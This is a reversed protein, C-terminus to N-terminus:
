ASPLVTRCTTNRVSPHMPLSCCNNSVIVDIRPRERTNMSPIPEAGLEKRIVRAASSPRPVKVWIPTSCTSLRMRSSNPLSSLGATVCSDTVNESVLAFM